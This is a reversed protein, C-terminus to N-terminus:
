SLAERVIAELQDFSFPKPLFYDGGAALARKELLPTAYASVLVVTTTPSAAKVKQALELGTMGLMNYDTILLLVPREALVALAAAGSGVAVVENGDAIYALMRHLIVRVDPEDDVLVIAASLLPSM